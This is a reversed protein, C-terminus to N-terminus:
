YPIRRLRPVRDFAIDASIVPEHYFRRFGAIWNDNEGLRRGASVLERDVDAAVEAIGRHLAYIKWWKFYEWAAASNDFGVAAEALSIISTRIIEDRHRALFTRAPGRRGQAGENVFQILFTTDAIM